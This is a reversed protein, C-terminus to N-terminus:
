LKKYRQVEAGDVALPLKEAWAPANLMMREVESLHHGEVVVEDHIHTVINLKSTLIQGVADVLLDRATAQVLNEVLKGGYTHTRVYQNRDNMSMYSLGTGYHSYELNPQFYHLKRGSPLIMCLYPHNFEFSVYQNIRIIDGPRQISYVAAQNMTEWFKVLKSHQERYVEVALKAEPVTITEGYNEVMSIFKKASMQFGLGLVAQKGVFRQKSTVEEYPVSYIKSAMVMYPDKGSVFVELAEYDMCVMQVVRAEISSYDVITLGDPHFIMPRVCSKVLEVSFEGAQIRAVALEGDINGRTLNQPQLLRGGFRGTGAVHYQLTGKVTNDECLATRMTAYKKFSMHTTNARHELAKRVHEPTNPSELVSAVTEAKLDLIKVGQSRVWGLVKDRQTPFLSTIRIFESSEEDIMPELKSEILNVTDLDITIGRLNIVQTDVWAQHEDGEFKPLMDHLEEMSDIDAKLYVDRFELWDEPADAPMRRISKDHKSPKRPICFKTILRSGGDYKQVNLGAAATAKGLALPLGAVGCLAMTDILQNLQLSPFMDTSQTLAVYEFLAQHAVFLGGLNIHETVWTPIINKTPHSFDYYDYRGNLKFGILMVECDLCYKVTGAKRIDVKSFSELDVYLHDKM